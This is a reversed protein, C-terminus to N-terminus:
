GRFTRSRNGSKPQTKSRGGGKVAELNPLSYPDFGPAPAPGPLTPPPDRGARGRGRGRGRRTEARPPDVRGLGPAAALAADFDFGPPRAPRSRKAPPSRLASASAAAEAAGDDDSEEEDSEEEESTLGLGAERAAAVAAGLAADGSDDGSDGASAGADGGEGRGTAVADAMDEQVETRVGRARVAGPRQDALPLPMFSSADGSVPASAPPPPPAVPAVVPAQVVAAPPAYAFPLAFAPAPAAAAGPAGAALAAGFASAAGAAVAVVTPRPRRAPPSAMSADNVAPPALPAAPAPAPRAPATGGEQAEAAEREGEAVGAAIAALVAAEHTLVLSTSGGALARLAAPSAPAGRALRVLLAKPLVYGVSEDSARCLADRWDTLSVFVSRAPGPARLGAKAAADLAAARSFPTKRYVEGCLLRSAELVAGLAGRPAGPRTAPSLGLAPADGAAVLAARLRDAVYLLYHTDARAYALAAPTLPRARWDALQWRKDPVVGVISELLAALGHPLGLAKAALGTDFLNALAVGFDRQLWGVDGRAGHAVKVVSPDAFIPGLAEGVCGRLALADIIIDEDRTSLQILCTFGQFSRYSHAELDLAIEKAGALRAAAAALAPPTDV